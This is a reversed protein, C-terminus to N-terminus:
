WCNAACTGNGGALSHVPGTAAGRPPREYDQYQDYPATVGYNPPSRAPWAERDDYGTHAGASGYAAYGPNYGHGYM